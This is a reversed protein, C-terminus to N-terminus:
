SQLISNRLTNRVIRGSTNTSLKVYSIDVLCIVTEVDPQFLSVLLEILIFVVPINYTVSESFIM